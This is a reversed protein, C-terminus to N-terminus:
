VFTVHMAMAQAAETLHQHIRPVDTLVRDSPSDLVVKTGRRRGVVDMLAKAGEPTHYILEDEDAEYIPNQSVDVVRLRQLPLLAAALDRVRQAQLFCDSMRVHTLSPTAFRLGLWARPPLHASVDLHELNAHALLPTCAELSARSLTTALDMHTLRTQQLTECLSQLSRTAEEKEQPTCRRWTENRSLVLRRLPHNHDRISTALSLLGSVCIEAEALYLNQLTRNTKLANGLAIAGSDCVNVQCLSLTELASSGLADAIRRVGAPSLSRNGDLVLERLSTNQKVAESLQVAVSKTINLQVAHLIQVM